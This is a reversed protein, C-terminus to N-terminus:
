VDQAIDSQRFRVVNNNQQLVVSSRTVNNQCVKSPPQSM